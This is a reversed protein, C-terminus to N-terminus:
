LPEICYGTVSTPSQPLKAPDGSSPKEPVLKQTTKATNKGAEVPMMAPALMDPSRLSGRRLMGTPVIAAMATLRTM